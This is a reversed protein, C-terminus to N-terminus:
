PQTVAMEKEFWYDYHSESPRKYDFGHRGRSTQGSAELGSLNIGQYFM